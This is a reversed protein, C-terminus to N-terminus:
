EDGSTENLRAKAERKGLTRLAFLSAKAKGRLQLRGDRREWLYVAQGSVGLLKALEAQSLDLKARFQKV